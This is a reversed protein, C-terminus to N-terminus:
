DERQLAKKDDEEGERVDDGWFRSSKENIKVDKLLSDDVRKTNIFSLTVVFIFFLAIFFGTIKIAVNSSKAGFISSSGGGFVGGIGDGQEDQFLVLLIIAFSTVIFFVFMLFRFFEM